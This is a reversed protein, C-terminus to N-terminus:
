KISSKFIVPHFVFIHITMATSDATNAPSVDMSALHPILFVSESTAVAILVM